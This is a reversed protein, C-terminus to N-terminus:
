VLYGLVCLVLNEALNFGRVNSTGRLLTNPRPLQKMSLVLNQHAKPVNQQQGSERQQDHAGPAERLQM